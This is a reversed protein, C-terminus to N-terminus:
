RVADKATPYTPQAGSLGVMLWRGVTRAAFEWWRNGTRSEAWRLAGTVGGIVVVTLAWDVVTNAPVFSLVTFHAVLWGWGSQIGTRLMALLVPPLTVTM